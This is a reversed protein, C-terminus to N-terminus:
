QALPKMEDVKAPAPPAPTGEVDPYVIEANSPTNFKEINPAYIQVTMNYRPFICLMTCHKLADLATSDVHLTDGSVNIKIKSLDPNGAYHINVAYSPSSIYAVDIDGATDVKSFSHINKVATTHVTTEYRERIRPAADAALAISAVSGVLFIGLLIGTVWGRVPWKRKLASIGTLIMFVAIIASLSMLIALLWQERAGIPFLNEQFLQNHHLLMYIKLISVASLTALGAVIFGFGTLRVTLRFLGNIVPLVRNNIRHAAGNIDARHVSEKLAELTVPKGQMQLKESATEAPPMVLWLVLYIVIGLGSGFIAAVVFLLRIITVDLGSYSALGSAVGAIIATDTNRFFKRSTKDESKSTEESTEKDDDSFDDPDGLQEKLYQVDEALVVKEGTVGRELLLESMRLEVESVVEKDHVKKEIDALYAKLSKHAEVAITFAERGLHIRTVENM